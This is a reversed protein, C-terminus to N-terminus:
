RGALADQVATLDPDVVIPEGAAQRARATDKLGSGTVLCVVTEGAGIVGREALHKVAAWPAAAAPEPFVGSFRAIESMASLILDDGVAAADGGSEFVARVAAVGDRPRDVSISDAITEAEVAELDLSSWDPLTEGSSKLRHFTQSVAASSASQACDIKPLHDILGCAKLDRFGKWVASIINGDGTPVVVRDPVGDLDEWIEFASTKKGERTFPNFGTSRNYWGFAECAALCLDYADDYGGRVALVRAGYSLLQTLKAAPASEPVFVVARAGLAASLCALSSGANGTSATAVVGAGTEIARCLTVATARDKLSASPNASEDKLFLSGLGANRALRGAEVLPTGGIRLPFVPVAEGVPLLARYRFIDYCGGGFGSELAKAARPWDYTIELNGGCSPCLFGSYDADQEVKCAYCRYGNM